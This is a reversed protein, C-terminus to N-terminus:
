NLLNFFILYPYNPRKIRLIHDLSIILIILSWVILLFLLSWFSLYGFVFLYFFNFLSWWALPLDTILYRDPTITTFLTVFRVTLCLETRQSSHAFNCWIFYSKWFIQDTRRYKGGVIVDDTAYQVFHKKDKIYAAM